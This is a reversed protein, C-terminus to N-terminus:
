YMKEINEKSSSVSNIRYSENNLIMKTKFYEYIQILLGIPSIIFIFNNIINYTINDEIFINKM